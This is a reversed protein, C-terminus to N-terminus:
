GGQAEGQNPHHTVYNRDGKQTVNFINEAGAQSLRKITNKNGDQNTTVHNAGTYSGDSIYKQQVTVENNDGNQQSEAENSQGFAMGATFLLAFTFTILKKMKNYRNNKIIVGGFS